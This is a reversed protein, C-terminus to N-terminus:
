SKNKIGDLIEQSTIMLQCNLVDYANLESLHRVNVNNINKAARFLNYIDQNYIVLIQNDSVKLESLLAQMNKTKTGVAKIQYSSIIQTKANAIVKTISHTIEKSNQMITHNQHRSGFSKGGGRWLPSRTSGVRANGTGKQKWPKKGGGSVEARSKTKAIQKRKGSRIRRISQTTSQDM